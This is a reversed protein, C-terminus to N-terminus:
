QSERTSVTTGFIPETATSLRESSDGLLDFFTLTTSGRQLWPGPTYLAYQPGIWWFRGLNHEGVWMQGKHLGRTDLYTDAQKKVTMHAQFFCPGSCSEAVFRLHAVDDMPLSYIEWNKPAAGDLTVEGTLGAQETRIKKSYNVRGTNEVLIDLTSAHTQRPIDISETGLRRDLTGALQQDIYVQAYDHLGGLVLKGGGGEDLGTRYLVYGYSQDLDEFSLPVKSNIPTPLNRWLSATLMTPAIPFTARRASKPLRPPTTHTVDVIAKRFLEFKYRPQGNEELPADYDYSTTDPHYDTGTHTDAGNMWGFSSGGAFLFLNVSYGQELVWRLEAAEQAGNTEHHKEGWKDFWGAWYEGTMRPGDPRLEDLKAFSKKADGTGFNIVTPLEPLSGKLIDGPQNSTYLLADGLGAEILQNKVGELYTKDDGFAGYENEVQIAIIPGGNKQLLPKIEQALRAFWRTVAATYKPDDSRLVLSKDKLLWSPYGGLEWEACVYPGPRLIVNLGEQQAERIYEAIDNQGTFDYVGPRPEHANWFAYTSITNLGMAKAKRLRDRWYERPVRTYHMEGSIIQYPKGDMLFQRGSVTVSHDNLPARAPQACASGESVALCVALLFVFVGTSVKTRLPMQFLELANM